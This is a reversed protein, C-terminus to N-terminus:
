RWRRRDHRSGSNYTNARTYSSYSKLGLAPNIVHKLNKIFVSIGYDSLHKEDSFHGCSSAINGHEIVYHRGFIPSMRNNFDNMKRFYEDTLKFSDKVRRAFVLSCFVNGVDQFRCLEKVKMMMKECEHVSQSELSNGAVHLVLSNAQIEHNQLFEIAGQITKDGLVHVKVKKRTFMKEGEIYRVNSTGVIVVDASIVPLRPPPPSTNLPRPQLPPPSEPLPTPSISIYGNQTTSPTCPTQSLNDMPIPPMQGTRPSAPVNPPTLSINPPTSPVFPPAGVFHPVMGMRVPHFIPMPPCAQRGHFKSQLENCLNANNQNLTDIQSRLEKCQLAYLDLEKKLEMVDFRADSLKTQLEETRNANDSHLIDIQSRLHHCEQTTLDLQKELDKTQLTLACNLDDKAKIDKQTKKLEKIESKLANNLDDKAKIEKQTQLIENEYKETILCLNREVMESELNIVLNKLEEFKRLLEDSNVVSNTADIKGHNSSKTVSYQRPSNSVCKNVSNCYSDQPTCSNTLPPLDVILRTETETIMSPTKQPSNPMTNDCGESSEDSTTKQNISPSKDQVNGDPGVYHEVLTCLAPFEVTAWEKYYVGQAQILGTSLFVTITIVTESTDRELSCLKIAVCEYNKKTKQQLKKESDKEPSKQGLDPDSPETWCCEFNDDEPLVYRHYLAMLWCYIRTTSTTFAVMKAAASYTDTDVEEFKVVKKTKNRPPFATPVEYRLINNHEEVSLDKTSLFQIPFAM